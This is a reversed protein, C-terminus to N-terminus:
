DSNGFEGACTVPYGGRSYPAQYCSVAVRDYAGEMIVGAHSPSSMWLDFIQQASGEGTALIEGVACCYGRAWARDGPGGDLWHNLSYVDGVRTHLEVYYDASAQLSGDHALNGLGNNARTQQILGLVTQAWDPRYRSPLPPPAIASLVPPPVPPEYVYAEPELEAPPPPPAPTTPAPTPIPTPAPTPTAPAEVLLLWEANTDPNAPETLGAGSVTALYTVAVLVLLAPSLWLAIKGARSHRATNLM